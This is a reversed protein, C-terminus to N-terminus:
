HGTGNRRDTDYIVGNTGPMAASGTPSPIYGRIDLWTLWVVWKGEGAPQREEFRLVGNGNAIWDVIETYKSLEDPIRIVVSRAFFMTEAKHLQSREIALPTDGKRVPYGDPHAHWYLPTQDIPDKLLGRYKPSPGFGLM